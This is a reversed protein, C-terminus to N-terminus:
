SDHPRPERLVGESLRFSRELVGTYEDTPELRKLFEHVGVGPTRRLVRHEGLNVLRTDPPDQCWSHRQRKTPSRHCIGHRRRLQAPVGLSNKRVQYITLKVLLRFQAGPL